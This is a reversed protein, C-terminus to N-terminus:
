LQRLLLDQGQPHSRRLERRLRSLRPLARGDRLFRARQTRQRQLGLVGHRSISNTGGKTVVAFNSPTAFEAPTNALQVNVEQIGELSPQVPGPGIPYAMVAIGDMTPLVGTVQRVGQVNNLSNGPVSNTGPNQLVYSYFGQDGGHRSILPLEQLDQTTKINSLNSTETSIPAGASTVQVTTGSQTLALVVDANLVQNATLILGGREYAAFGSTSVQLKYSGVSLGPVSYVGTNGTAAQRVGGEAENIISVKANPVVAGSPDTVTGTITGFTTQGMGASSIILSISIGILFWRFRHKM